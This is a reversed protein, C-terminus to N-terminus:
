EYHIDRYYIITYEAIEETSISNCDLLYNLNDCMTFLLKKLCHSLDYVHDFNIYKTSLRNHYIDSDQYIFKKDNISYLGYRLKRIYNMEPKLLDITFLFKEKNEGTLVLVEKCLYREGNINRMQPPNKDNNFFLNTTLIAKEM